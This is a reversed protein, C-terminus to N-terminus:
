YGSMSDRDFIKRGTGDSNSSNFGYDIIPGRPSQSEGDLFYGGEAIERLRIRADKLGGMVAEPIDASDYRRYCIYDLLQYSIDRLTNLAGTNTITYNYLQKIRNDIDATIRDLDAQLIADDVLETNINIYASLYKDGLYQKAEELTLYAM